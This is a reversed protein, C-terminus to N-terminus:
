RRKTRQDGDLYRSRLREILAQAESIDRRLAAAEARTAALMSASTAKANKRELWTLQAIMENLQDRLAIIVKM